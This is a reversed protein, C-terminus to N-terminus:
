YRLLTTLLNLLDVLRSSLMSAELDDPGPKLGWYSEPIKENIVDIMRRTLLVLM